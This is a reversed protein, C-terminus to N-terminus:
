RARTSRSRTSRPRARWSRSACPRSCNQVAVPLAGFRDRMEEELSELEEVTSSGRGTAPVADPTRDRQRRVGAAPLMTLPLDVSVPPAEEVPVGRLREVADGIMRTYLDFGIATANGSQEAGLLNGTGRIELDKMAISFGAGLDQAEFVAEM